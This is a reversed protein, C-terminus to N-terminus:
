ALEAWARLYLPLSIPVQTRDALEDHAYIAAICMRGWEAPRRGPDAALVRAALASWTLVSHLHAEPALEPDDFRRLSQRKCVDCWCNLMGQDDELQALWSAKRYSLLPEVLVRPTPDNGRTGGAPRGPPVLHRVTTTAGIATLVAGHALAGIAALDTRLLAVMPVHRLVHTLGHVAARSNLPDNADALVLAVPEGAAQLARTLRGSDESVWSRDAPVVILAGATHKLTRASACFRKGAELVDHLREEDGAPVYRSPSLYFAVRHEQQLALWEGEEGLLPPTEPVSDADLEYLAPDIAVPSSFAGRRLKTLKAAGKRGRVILGGVSQTM